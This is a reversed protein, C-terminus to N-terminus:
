DTKKCLVQSSTELFTSLVRQLCSTPETRQRNLGEAHPWEAGSSGTVLPRLAKSLWRGLEELLGLWGCGPQHSWQSISSQGPRSCSWNPMSSSQCPGRYLSSSTAEGLWNSESSLRDTAWTLRRHCPLPGPQLSPLASCLWDCCSAHKLGACSTPAPAVKEEGWSVPDVAPWSPYLQLMWVPWERSPSLAYYTDEQHWVSSLTRESTSRCVVHSPHCVNLIFGPYPYLSLKTSKM